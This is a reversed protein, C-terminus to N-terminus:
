VNNTIEDFREELRQKVEQALKANTRSLHVSLDRGGIQESTLVYVTGHEFSTGPEAMDQMAQRQVDSPAVEGDSAISFLPQPVHGNVLDRAWDRQEATLGRWSDYGDDTGPLSARTINFNNEVCVPGLDSDPIVVVRNLYQTWENMCEECMFGESGVNIYEDGLREGDCANGNTHVWTADDGDFVEYYRDSCNACRRSDVSSADLDDPWDEPPSCQEVVATPMQSDYDQANLAMELDRLEEYWSIFSAPDDIEDLVDTDINERNSRLLMVVHAEDATLDSDGYPNEPYFLDLTSQEVDVNVMNQDEAFARCHGQYESYASRDDNDMEEGALRAQAPRPWEETVSNFGNEPSDGRNISRTIRETAADIVLQAVADFGNGDYTEGAYAAGVENPPKLRIAENFYWEEITDEEMNELKQGEILQGYTRRITHGSDTKVLTRGTHNETPSAVLRDGSDTTTVYSGSPISSGGGVNVNVNIPEPQQFVVTDPPESSTSLADTLWSFRGGSDDDDGPM